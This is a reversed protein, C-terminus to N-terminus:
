IKMQNNSYILCFWVETKHFVNCNVFLILSLVSFQTHTLTDALRLWDHVKWLGGEYIVKHYLGVLKSLLCSTVHGFGCPYLVTALTRLHLSCLHKLKHSQLKIELQYAWICTENLCLLVNGEKHYWQLDLNAIAYRHWNQAKTLHHPVWYSAIKWIGTIDRNIHHVGFDTVSHEVALQCTKWSSRV